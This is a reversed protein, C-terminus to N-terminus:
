LMKNRFWQKRNRSKLQQMMAAKLPSYIHENILIHPRM